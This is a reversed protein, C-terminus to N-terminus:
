DDLLDRPRVFRAAQRAAAPATAAYTDSLRKDRGRARTDSLNESGDLHRRYESAPDLCRAPNQRYLVAYGACGLIHVTIKSVPGTRECGACRGTPM